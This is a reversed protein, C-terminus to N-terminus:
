YTMYPGYKSANLKKADVDTNISNGEASVWKGTRNNFNTTDTSVGNDAQGSATQLARFTNLTLTSTTGQTSNLTTEVIKNNGSGQYAFAYFAEGKSFFRPIWVMKETYASNSATTNIAGVFKGNIDFM